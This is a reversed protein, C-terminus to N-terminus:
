GVAVERPTPEMASLLRVACRRARSRILDDTDDRATSAVQAALEIPRCRSVVWLASLRHEPREDNLMAALYESAGSPLSGDARPEIWVSAHRIANARVRPSDDTAYRDLRISGGRLMSLAELANARVRPEADGLLDALVAFAHDRQADEAGGREVSGLLLAASARAGAEPHVRAVRIVEECLPGCLILRRVLEIADGASEAKALRQRLGDLYTDRSRALMWKATGPCWWRWESPDPTHLPDVRELARSAALRVMPVSCRTLGRLRDANAIRRHRSRVRDLASVASMAVSPERDYGFDELGDDVTDSAQSRALVRVAALRVFPDRDAVVGARALAVAGPAGMRGALEVVGRRAPSSVDCLGLLRELGKVSLVSHIRASRNRSRLLVWPELLQEVLDPDGSEIVREIVRRAAPVLSPWALWGIALAAASALDVKAAVSRLPLHEDQHRGTLWADVRPGCCRTAALVARLVSEDRHQDYTRAWEVLERDVASRTAAPYGNSEQRVLVSARVVARRSRSASGTVNESPACALRVLDPHDLPDCDMDRLLDHLEASALCDAAIPAGQQSELGLLASVFGNGLSLCIEAQQTDELHTWASLLGETLVHSRGIVALTELAVPVLLRCEERSAIKLASGLAAARARKPLRRIDELRALVSRVMWDETKGPAFRVPRERTYLCVRDCFRCRTPIKQESRLIQQM